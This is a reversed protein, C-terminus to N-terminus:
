DQQTNCGLVELRLAIDNTWGRPHIRLFRGFLAPEFVSLAEQDPDNNGTFIMERHSDKELVSAWSHGDHSVTVSFETVMMQTLFSRAGQTIVGTIRKVTTLDVQLWEHPNNEKPRWANTSGEQHLRALSPIWKRLLSSRYSSATINTILGSRLGLPHSCSNLDCGLLELRLAPSLVFKEPHIRLYRAVFPPSFKNHKVKTSDVNGHFMNPQSTYNGQYTIWTEQDLSYSIVFLSIYNERLSARVGQTEIGHLLTPKLLDVQIWSFKSTGMWANIFGSQHLRALQPEWTGIHDSATIQSDQINGSKMGLPLACEPDYVLLKARMGALQYDGVTCEVLWTGVTSPIMEISGFVGPFLNYIGMRHEQGTHLIFPLGHFHVAHYEGDSGVNLLHWRVRQHQAVMLGPLTEAVYGNIAAFKNSIHYWPDDPYVHCPPVCHNKLNEELYWSKTEDFTHFLLSFDQIKPGLNETTALTGTKCVVLPGILGSHLDREKDVTSYYAGAKCGFEEDAPGQKRTIRWNYTQAEGPPVPEGPVGAPLFPAYSQTIGAAQTRDYVGQLHFSYPRSAKNKFIVTLLENVEAKILPGMIGLHKQLEGRHVPELFDKDRYEKFVVKKYKPLFKRMGRRAERLKILRPDKRIGYDWSIEEAAIYYHRSTTKRSRIDIKDSTIVNTTSNDEQSYDDYDLSLNIGTKNKTATSNYVVRVSDVTHEKSDSKIAIEKFNQERELSNSESILSEKLNPNSDPIIENSDERLVNTELRMENRQNMEVNKETRNEETEWVFQWKFEDNATEASSFDDRTWNGEAQRRERGSRENVTENLDLIWEGNKELEKLVDLPIGGVPVSSANGGESSVVTMNKMQCIQEGKVTWGTNGGTDNQSSTFNKCVWVMHTTKQPRRGKPLLNVCDSIDDIDEDQDVFMDGYDCPCVSYHISMGRSKLNGDFASIEWEGPLDMEMTITMSTMPFLTLVSQHLGDYQFLNGTFYVSLFESQTGVNAVHWFTVDTQCMLFQHRSFMIGNISYIVNSNYFDPNTSKSSNQHKGINEDMYWSRNEDFVAFVISWEKDPALLRGRTDIATSKCILLIGVLGSALDKEPSVTSQYLQSLCQPDEELPGDDATLEWVYVFTGNPPVEMSRLDNENTSSGLPYMKTLDKPVINFPRSALNKFTIHFRDSVKGKLLPGMLTSVTNKRRTFTEDTYEVYTVKKYKYDLHHPAEPMEISQLESDTAALHPAYDWVVEEAAIYHKWIKSRQGRSARGLARPRMPQLNVTNFYDEGYEDYDHIVNRLDPGPCNEVKFMARMGDLHHAYIQCSILFRGVNGPKMEATVYTMPSVEMTVKRHKLVKLTHDQFHISHIEPATGVGIIHWVVRKQCMTLGPLTSNIYGNITHYETRSNSRQINERGRRDGVEGYWSKNEDFVAFLLVFATDRRQNDKSFARSQCILLPGVLGSNIDRVPDVQSSYSYTLCEPDDITPGDAASIDWVYKHYKGPAVADDEKEKGMTSDDYGAGESQKWYTIGVPSISYPHSALNKFHVVVKERPQTVIVPGQIGTWPPRPKPITYTADTYERYVAKIYKQPNDKSVWRQDSTADGDGVSVYDWGIEVAAIFHERVTITKARGIVCLLLLLPPLLSVGMTPTPVQM